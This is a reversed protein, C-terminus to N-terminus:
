CTKRNASRDAERESRFSCSAIAARRIATGRATSPSSPARHTTAVGIANGTAFALGLSATHAGLAYDPVVRRPSSIPDRRVCANTSTRATTATLGAMSAATVCRRSITRFSITASNTANTSWPGCARRNRNGRSDTRIACVRRSCALADRYGPGGGSRPASASRRWGTRPWTATRARSDRVSARRRSERASEEDLPSQDARGPPRGGETRARRDRTTATTPFRWCRTPTRARVAHRRHAGHRVALSTGDLFVRASVGRRRRRGRRAAAHHPGASPVGAGASKMFMVEHGCGQDRASGRAPRRTRKPSWCMATRCGYLWRPHALDTAFAAVKLGAAPVPAEGPSWGKAPAVNVTPLLTTHPSPLTPNPGFSAEPPLEAIDSCAPLFLVGALVSAACISKVM